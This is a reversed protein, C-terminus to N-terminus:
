ANYNFVELTLFLRRREKRSNISLKAYISGQHITMNAANNQNYVFNEICKMSEPPGNHTYEKCGKVIPMLSQVASNSELFGLGFTQWWCLLHLSFGTDGVRYLLDVRPASSAQKFTFVERTKFSVTTPATQYELGYLIYLRYDTLKVDLYNVIEVVLALDYPVESAIQEITKGYFSNGKVPSALLSLYEEPTRSRPTTSILQRSPNSTATELAQTGLVNNLAQDVHQNLKEIKKDLEAYRRNFELKFTEFDVSFKDSRLIMNKEFLDLRQNWSSQLSDPKEPVGNQFFVQLKQSRADGSRKGLSEHMPAQVLSNKELIDLRKSFTASLTEMFEKLEHTGNQYSEQLRHLFKDHADDHEHWNNAKVSETTGDLNVEDLDASSISCCQLFIVFLLVKWISNEM